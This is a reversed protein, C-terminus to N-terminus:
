KLEASKGRRGLPQAQSGGTESKRYLGAMEAMCERPRKTKAGRKIQKDERRKKKKKKRSKSEGMEGRMSQNM